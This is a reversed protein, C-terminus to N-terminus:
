STSGGGCTGRSNLAGGCALALSEAVGLGLEGVIVLLLLDVKLLAVELPSAECDRPRDGYFSISISLCLPRNIPHIYGVPPLFFISQDTVADSSTSKKNNANPTPKQTNQVTQNQM